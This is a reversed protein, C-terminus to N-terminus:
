RPDTSLFEDNSIVSILKITEKVKKLASSEFMLKDFQDDIFSLRLM